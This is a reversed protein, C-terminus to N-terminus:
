TILGKSFHHTFSTELAHEDWKHGYLAINIIDQTTTTEPLLGWYKKKGLHKGNPNIEIVTLFGLAQHTNPIFVIEVKDLQMNSSAKIPGDTVKFSIFPM